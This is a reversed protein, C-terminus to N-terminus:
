RKWCVWANWGQQEYVLAAIRLNTAPDYLEAESVGYEPGWVSWMVQMLGRATSRPNAATPNGGSECAMVRLAMDVQDAPFYAAVLTRWQEVNGNGM